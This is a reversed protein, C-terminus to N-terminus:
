GCQFQKGVKRHLHRGLDASPAKNVPGNVFVNEGCVPIQVLAANNAASISFITKKIKQLRKNPSIKLESLSLTNTLTQSVGIIHFAERNQPDDKRLPWALRRQITGIKTYTSGLCTRKPSSFL